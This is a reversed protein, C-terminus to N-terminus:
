RVDHQGSSEKSKHAHLAMTTGTTSYRDASRSCSARNAIYLGTRFARLRKAVRDCNDAGLLLLLVKDEFLKSANMCNRNPWVDILPEFLPAAAPLM